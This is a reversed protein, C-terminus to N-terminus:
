WLIRSEFDLPHNSIHEPDVSCLFFQEPCMHQPATKPLTMWVEHDLHVEMWVDECVSGVVAEEQSSPGMHHASYVELIWRALSETCLILHVSIAGQSSKDFLATSAYNCVSASLPPATGEGEWVLLSWLWQHASELHPSSALEVFVVSVAALLSPLGLWPASSGPTNKRWYGLFEEVSYLLEKLIPQSYCLKHKM